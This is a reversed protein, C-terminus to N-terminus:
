RRGTLAHRTEDDAYESEANANRCTTCVLHRM